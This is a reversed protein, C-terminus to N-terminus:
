SKEECGKGGERIFPEVNFFNLFSKYLIYTCGNEPIAFIITYGGSEFFHSFVFSFFLFFLFCSLFSFHFILIESDRFM